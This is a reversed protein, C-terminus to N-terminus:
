KSLVEALQRLSDPGIRDVLAKIARIDEVRVGGNIAAPGVGTRRAGGRKRAAKLISGKYTSLMKTDMKVGYKEDLHAQLQKPTADNGLTGMALRVCEMKNVRGARKPTSGGGQEPGAASKKPRGRPM